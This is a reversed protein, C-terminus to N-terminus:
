VTSVVIRGRQDPQAFCEKIGTDQGIVQMLQVPDPATRMELHVVCGGAFQHVVQM